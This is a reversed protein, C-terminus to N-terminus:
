NHFASRQHIVFSNGTGDWTGDLEVQYNTVGGVANFAYLFQNTIGDPLLTPGTLGDKVKTTSGYHVRCNMTQHPVGTWNTVNVLVQINTATSCPITTSIHHFGGSTPGQLKVQSNVLSLGPMLDSTGTFIAQFPLTQAPPSLPFTPSNPDYNFVQYPNGPTVQVAYNLNTSPPIIAEALVDVSTIGNPSLTLTQLDIAYRLQGGAQGPQGGWNGWTLYHLLFRLSRPGGPCVRWDGVGDYEWCDGGHVQYCTPDLSIAFQHASTGGVHFHYRKGAALFVPNFTIRVPYVFAPVRQGWTVAYIDRSYGPINEVSLIFTNAFMPSVFSSPVGGGAFFPDLTSVPDGVRPPAIGSAPIGLGLSSPVNISIGGTNSVIDGLLMPQDYCKQIATTDLEIKGLTRNHLPKGSAPDCESIILTLPQYYNAQTSFITIGGLWGDQANLFSQGLVNHSYSQNYVVKGWYDRDVYDRWFYNWRDNLWRPYDPDDEGHLNTQGTALVAWVENDFRLFSYVPDVGSGLALSNNTPTWFPGCRHRYRGWGLRRHSYTWFGHNLLPEALWNPKDPFSCDLRVRMGSPKPLIFTDWAQIAPESPNQLQLAAATSVGTAAFRLGESVIANYAGDLNTGVASQSTDFFNDITDIVFATPKQLQQVCWNVLDVLKNFMVLTCYNALSAALAALATQLTAIQGEMQAFTSELASIRFEHDLMNPLQTLTVQQISVVGSPSLLVYGILLNTAPVAPLPPVPGEVGPIPGVLCVREQLMSVSEAQAQGTDADVVFNRSETDATITQGYAVIAIQRQQTVPMAGAVTQFDITQPNDFSYQKGGWYLRGVSIAVQTSAAKTISLGVYANGRDVADAVLDDMADNIFGQMNNFDGAQTEMNDEFLVSKYAM